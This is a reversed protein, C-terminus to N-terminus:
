TTKTSSIDVKLKKESGAGITMSVRYGVKGAESGHKCKKLQDSTSSNKPLGTGTGRCSSVFKTGQKKTLGKDWPADSTSTIMADYESGPDAVRCDEDGKSCRDVISTRPEPIGVISLPSCGESAQERHILVRLIEQELEKESEYEDGCGSDALVHVGGEVVQKDVPGTDKRSPQSSSPTKDILVVRWWRWSKQGESSPESTTSQRISLTSGDLRHANASAIQPLNDHGSKQERKNYKQLDQEVSAAKDQSNHLYVSCHGQESPSTQEASTCPTSMTRANALGFVQKSRHRTIKQHRSRASVQHRAKPTELYNMASGENFYNETDSSRSLFTDAALIDQDCRNSSSSHTDDWSAPHTNTSQPIGDPKLPDTIRIEPSLITPSNTFRTQDGLFGGQAQRHFIGEYDKRPTEDSWEASHNDREGFAKDILKNLDEGIDQPPVVQLKGSVSLERTPVRKLEPHKETLQDAIRSVLMCQKKSPPLLTGSTNTHLPSQSGTCQEDDRREAVDSKGILGLSAITYLIAKSPDRTQHSSGNCSPSRCAHTAFGGTKRRAVGAVLRESGESEEDRPTPFVSSRPTPKAPNHSKSFLPTTIPTPQPEQDRKYANLLAEKRSSVTGPKIVPGSLGSYPSHNFVDSDRRPPM